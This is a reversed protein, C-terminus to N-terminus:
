TFLQLQRQLKAREMTLKGRTVSSMRFVLSDIEKIRSKMKGKDLNSCPQAKPADKRKYYM